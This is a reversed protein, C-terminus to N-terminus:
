GIMQPTPKQNQLREQEMKAYTNLSVGNVKNGNKEKNREEQIGEQEMNHKQIWYKRIQIPMKWLTEYPLGIYRFCGWLEDQLIAEYNEPLTSFFLSTLNFFSLCQAM